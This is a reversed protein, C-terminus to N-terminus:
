APPVPIYLPNGLVQGDKAGAVRFFDQGYLLVIVMCYSLLFAGSKREPAKKGSCFFSRAVSSIRGFGIQKDLSPKPFSIRTVALAPFM